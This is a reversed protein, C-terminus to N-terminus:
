PAPTALARASAAKIIDDPSGAYAMVAFQAKGEEVGYTAVAGARVWLRIGNPTPIERWVQGAAHDQLLEKINEDSLGVATGLKFFGESTSRGHEFTVVVRYGRYEYIRTQHDQEANATRNVPAGYRSAADAEDDGLLAFSASAFSLVGLLLLGLTKM